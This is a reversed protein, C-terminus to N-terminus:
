DAGDPSATRLLSRGGHENPVSFVELPGTVDLLRVDDYAVVLIVRETSPATVDGTHPRGPTAVLEGALAGTWIRPTRTRMLPAAVISRQWAPCLWTTGVVNLLIVHGCVNGIQRNGVARKRRLYRFQPSVVGPSQAEVALQEVDAGHEVVHTQGRRM